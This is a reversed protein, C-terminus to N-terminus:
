GDLQRRLRVPAKVRWAETVLEALEEVDVAELRLLVVAHGDYHSLTSFVEPRAGLLAEKEGLDAVPVVLLGDEDETRLRLFGKGAVHFGLTGYWTGESTGPLELVVRRLDDLTAVPGRYVRGRTGPALNPLM